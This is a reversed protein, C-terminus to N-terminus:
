TEELKVGDEQCKRERPQRIKLCNIDKQLLSKRLFTIQDCPSMKLSIVGRKVCDGLSALLLSFAWGLSMDM